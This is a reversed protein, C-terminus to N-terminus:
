ESIRSLDRAKEDARKDFQKKGKAMGIELKLKGRGDGRIIALPVITYGRENVRKELKSLESRNLLLKRTRHPECNDLANNLAQPLPTIQAGELFAEGERLRVFAGGMGFNGRGALIAKVEWGELKLGALFTAEIHYDHRARRNEAITQM